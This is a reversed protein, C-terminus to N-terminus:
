AAGELEEEEQEDRYIMAAQELEWLANGEIATSLPDAFPEVDISHSHEACFAGLSRIYQDAYRALKDRLHEAIDEFDGDDMFQGVSPPPSAQLLAVMDNWAMQHPQLPRNSM